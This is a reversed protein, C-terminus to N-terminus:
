GYGEGREMAQSLIQKLQFEFDGESQDSEPLVGEDRLGRIYRRFEEELEMRSHLLEADKDVEWFSLGALQSLSANNDGRQAQRVTSKQNVLYNLWPLQSAGYGVLPDAGEGYVTEGFATRATQGVNFFDGPIIKDLLSLATATGGSVPVRPHTGQIPYGEPFKNGTILEVPIKLAPTVMKAFDKPNELQALDIAGIQPLFYHGGPFAIAWRDKLWSPMIDRENNGSAMEMEMAFKPFASYGGPNSFLMELQYPLNKRTWTYFPAIKKFVRQETPTLDEYDFHARRVMAAAEAPSEKLGNRRYLYHTLRGLNEFYTNIDLATRSGARILRGQKLLSKISGDQMARSLTEVDGMFLGSLVGHRYAEAIEKRAQPDSKAKQVLRAAQAGYKPIRSVPVRALYMNWIDSLTNRVRYGPNVATVGVKWKNLLKNYTGVFQGLMDDDHIVKDYRNIAEAIERDYVHETDGRVTFKGEAEKNKKTLEKRLRIKDKLLRTRMARQTANGRLIEGRLRYLEDDGWGMEKALAMQSKFFEEGSIPDGRRLKRLMRNIEGIRDQLKENVFEKRVGYARKMIAAQMSDAQKMASRNLRILALSIPDAIVEKSYVSHDAIKKMDEISTRGDRALAFSPDSFISPKVQSPNIPTGNKMYIHPVYLQGREGPLPGKYKIGYIYDQRRIEEFFQHWRVIFELQDENQIGLKALAEEDIDMRVGGPSYNDKVAKVVGYKEAAALSDFISDRDLRNAAPMVWQEFADKYDSALQEHLHRAFVSLGHTAATSAANIPSFGGRFTKGVATALSPVGPIHGLVGQGAAARSLQPARGIPPTIPVSAQTFPLRLRAQFAKMTAEAEERIAASAIGQQYATRIEDLKGDAIDQAHKIQFDALMARMRFNPGAEDLLKFANKAGDLDNVADLGRIAAKGALYASRTPLTVVAGTGLTLLNLPDAVVDLGFGALGRLVNHDELVGWQRLLEGFGIQREGKIGEAAGSLFGGPKDDTAAELGSALSWIPRSIKNFIWSFGGGVGSAVKDWFSRGEGARKAALMLQELQLRSPGGSSGGLFSGGSSGGLFGGSDSTLFAM